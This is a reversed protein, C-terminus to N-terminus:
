TSRTLEASCKKKAGRCSRRAPTQKAHKRQLVSRYVEEVGAVHREIAFEERVRSVAAKSMKMRWKADTVLSRISVALRQPDSNPVLVGTRGDEVLEPVGGVSTAVVPVGAAMAELVNNPMGETESASVHVDSASLLRPVDSREGLFLVNAAIGLREAMDRLYDCRGDIDRGVLLIRWGAPLDARIKALAQLLADHGKYTYLSAVVTMVTADDHLGLKRRAKIRGVLQRRFGDLDIGNHILFLRERPLGEEHLQDIIQRSNGITAAVIRHMLNRELLSLIRHSKHYWNSSVRSVILTTHPALLVAFGAVLYSVPLVAHIIDIERQRILRSISAAQRLHHFNAAFEDLRLASFVRRAIAKLLRSSTRRSVTEACRDGLIPPDGLAIVEIGAKVLQEALPGGEYLTAVCVNFQERDLRPALRVIDREAGGFNLTPTLILINSRSSYM